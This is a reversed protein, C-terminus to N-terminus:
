PRNEEDLFSSHMPVELAILLLTVLACMKLQGAILGFPGMAFIYAFCALIARTTRWPIVARGAAVDRALFLLFLAWAFYLHNLTYEMSLHPFLVAVVILAIVQNLLPLKRIRFWYLAPFGCLVVLMYPKAVAQIAGGLGADNDLGYYVLLLQKVGSLLSHDYGIASYSYAVQIPGARGASERVDELALPISPGLLQLGILTFAAFAVASLVFEKYRKRSLLLLLMVGPYLKM